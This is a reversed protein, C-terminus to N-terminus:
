QQIKILDSKRWDSIGYIARTLRVNGDNDIYNIRTKFNLFEKQISQPFNKIKPSNPNIGVLDGMKFKRDNDDYEIAKEEADKRKRQFLREFVSPKNNDDETKMLSAIKEESIKVLEHEAIIYKTSDLRIDVIDYGFTNNNDIIRIGIVKFIRNPLSFCQVFDGQKFFPTPIKRCNEKGFMHELLRIQSNIEALVIKVFKQNQSSVMSDRFSILKNYHIAIKDQSISLISNEKYQADTSTKVLNRYGFLAILLKQTSQDAEGFMDLVANKYVIPLEEWVSMVTTDNCEFKIDKDYEM